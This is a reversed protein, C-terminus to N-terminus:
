IVAHLAKQESLRGKKSLRGRHSAHHRVQALEQFTEFLHRVVARLQKLPLTGDIVYDAYRCKDVLPMQSRVRRRAEAKTFGDHRCVRTIQTEQNVKVVIMCDMRRHAGAEILLAADYVIVPNSHQAAIERVLRAQERAVRPHVIANLQRLQKPNRFVIKALAGRNLTQDPNLIQTGYTHVIDKWAPKGPEVVIRALKDADILMAGCAQFLQAVTSKGSALGGTLGVLLMTSRLIPTECAIPFYCFYLSSRAM